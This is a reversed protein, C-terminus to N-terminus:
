RKKNMETGVAKEIWGGGLVIDGDYLVAAQGPAVGHQPEDFQVSITSDEKVKIISPAPKHQHRIQVQARFNAKPPSGGTWTVGVATFAGFSADYRSGAVLTNSAADIRVVYLPEASAIGLGKRQGITYFCAGHHRGIVKGDM